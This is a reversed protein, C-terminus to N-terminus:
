VVGLKGALYCMEQTSGAGAREIMRQRHYQVTKHSLGLVRAATKNTHGKVLLALVQLERHTLNSM